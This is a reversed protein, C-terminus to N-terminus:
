LVSSILPTYTLTERESHSHILSVSNPYLIFPQTLPQLEEAVKRALTIHPVFRKRDFPLGVREVEESIQQHLTLLPAQPTVAAWVISSRGREFSGLHTVSLSAPPPPLRVVIAKLDDLYHHDVEGLFLLTLHILPQPVTRGTQLASGLAALRQRSQEDFTLAFFLRM